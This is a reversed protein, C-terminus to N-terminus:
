SVLLCFRPPATPGTTRLLAETPSMARPYGTEGAIVQDVFHRFSPAIEAVIRGKRNFSLIDEHDIQVIPADGNKMKAAAFCIPDYNVSDPKAFQLLGQNLLVPSMFRDKFICSALEHFVGQGTNALFMIPGAEFEAFRYRSILSLYLNPFRYPALSQELGTVWSNSDVARIKWDCWEFDNPVGVRLEAPVEGEPLSEFGRANLTEVFRDILANDTM